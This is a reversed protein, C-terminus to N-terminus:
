VGLDNFNIRKNFYDNLLKVLDNIKVRKQHWTDRDRLTVTDDERSQYDITIGIPVGIEDSRAYRRGISGSHDIDVRFGQSLLREYIKDAIKPLDDKEVLPYVMVQIPALNIPLKLVIRGEKESYAHELTAYVLRDAGYSPEIVHPIFKEGSVTDEIEKFDLFKSDIEHNHIKIFGQEELRKKVLKGDLKSLESIIKGADGKFKPGILSKNPIIIIKKIKKQKDYKKFVSLDVGSYETHRSLDWDTRYAHGAVESWGQGDLHVQLDITQKSYHAREYPLQERFLQKDDPIGLGSIFNKSVGMFYAMWKNIILNRNLAEQLSIELPKKKNEQMKATLLRIQLNKYKNFNICDDLKDPDLIVEVEM